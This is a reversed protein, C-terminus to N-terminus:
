ERHYPHNHLISVARYLQEALVVRALGHPLTLPTLSWTFEAGSKLGDALGDAGGIIFALDRGGHRWREMRRALEATALLTGREDLVIRLSGAPVAALIRRGEGELLRGVPRGATRSEPKIAALELRADRPMRRAYEDFGADVWGPMRTGVAVVLLKL